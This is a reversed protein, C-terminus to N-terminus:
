DQDPCPFWRRPPRRRRQWRGPAGPRPHRPRVRRARPRRPRRAPLAGPGPRCPSGAAHHDHHGTRGVGVRGRPYAALTGAQRRRGKPGEGDLQLWEDKTAGCPRATSRSAPPSERLQADFPGDPHDISGDPGVEVEVEGRDGARMVVLSDGGSSRLQTYVGVVVLLAAAVALAGLVRMRAAIRRDALPVPEPIIELDDHPSVLIDALLEEVFQRRPPPAPVRGQRELEFRLDKTSLDKTGM